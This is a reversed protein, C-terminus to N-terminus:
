NCARKLDSLLPRKPIMSAFQIELMYNGAGAAVVGPMFLGTAFDGVQVKLTGKQPLHSGIDYWPSPGDFMEVTQPVIHSAVGQQYPIVGDVLTTADYIYTSTNLGSIQVLASETLSSATTFLKAIRWRHMDGRLVSNPFEFSLGESTAAPGPLTFNILVSEIVDTLCM